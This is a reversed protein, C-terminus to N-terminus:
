EALVEKKSKIEVLEYKVSYPEPYTTRKVELVYEYGEEYEFGDINSIAFYERKDSKYALMVNEQIAVGNNDYNAPYRPVYKVLSPKVTIEFVDERQETIVKKKSIQRGIEYRVNAVDMPPNSMWIKKAKFRYEYGRQYDFDLGDVILQYMPYKENGESDSFVLYDSWIDSMFGNKVVTEPYITIEVSKEKDLNDGECGSLSLIFLLLTAFFIIKRMNSYKYIHQTYYKISTHFIFITADIM